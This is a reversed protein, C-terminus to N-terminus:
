GHGADAAGREREHVCAHGDLRRHGTDGHTQHLFVIATESDKGVDETVFVVQAVHVELYGAGGLAHVGQLHVDLDFADGFFDHFLCQGLSMFGAQVDETLHVLDDAACAAFQGVASRGQDGHLDVRVLDAVDDALATSGDARQGFGGAGGDVDGVVAHDLDVAVALFGSGHG